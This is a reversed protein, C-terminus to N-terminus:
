KNESINKKYQDSCLGITDFLLPEFGDIKNFGMSNPKRNYNENKYDVFGPDSDTRYNNVSEGRLFAPNAPGGVVVNGSLINRRPRM